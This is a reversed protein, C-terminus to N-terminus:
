AEHAPHLCYPASGFCIPAGDSGLSYHSVICGEEEPYAPLSPDYPGPMWSTDNTYVLVESEGWSIARLLPSNPIYAWYTHLSNVGSVQCSVMALM